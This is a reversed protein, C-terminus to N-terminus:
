GRLNWAGAGANGTSAQAQLKNIEAQLLLHM